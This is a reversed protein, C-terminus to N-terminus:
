NFLLCVKNLLFEGDSDPVVDQWELKYEPIDLHSVIKGSSNYTISQMLEMKKNLCDITFLTQEVGNKYIKNGEREINGTEKIWIKIKGSEKSVYTSRILLTNGKYNKGIQFWDGKLITSDQQSSATSTLLIFFISLIVLKM